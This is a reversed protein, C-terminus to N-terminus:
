IKNDCAKILYYEIPVPSLYKVSLFLFISMLNNNMYINGKIHTM